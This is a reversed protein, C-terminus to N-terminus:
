TIGLVLQIIPYAYIKHISTSIWCVPRSKNVTFYCDNTSSQSQKSVTMIRAKLWIFLSIQGPKSVTMTWAELWIFISIQGRKSVTMTWRHKTSHSRYYHTDDTRRGSNTEPHYSVFSFDSELVVVILYTKTTTSYSDINYLWFHTTIKYYRIIEM